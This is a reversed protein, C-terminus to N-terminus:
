ADPSGKPLLNRIARAFALGTLNGHKRPDLFSLDRENSWTEQGSEVIEACAEIFIVAAARAARRDVDSLRAVPNTGPLARADRIAKAARKVLAESDPMTPAISTNALLAILFLLTEAATATPSVRVMPIM